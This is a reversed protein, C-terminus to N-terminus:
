HQIIFKRIESRAQGSINIKIIYIGDAWSSVNINAIYQNTYFIEKGYIDFIEISIDKVTENNININLFDKVPNPFLKIEPPRVIKNKTNLQFSLLKGFYPRIMLAGDISSNQWNGDLNYFLKNKANYNCDFGLNLLDNTTQEIGIYFTDSVFVPNDFQFYVFKNLKESYKPHLNEGEFKKIINNPKNNKNDLIIINFIVKELKEAYFSHNFYMFVGTISDAKLPTYQLVFKGYASGQGTLGYSMEATGDDYSYYNEFKQIFITSDNAKVKKNIDWKVSDTKIFGTIEFHALSDDNHSFTYEPYIYKNYIINPFFDDVGVDKPIGIENKTKNRIQYYWTVNRTNEGYNTFTLIMESNILRSSMENTYHQWPISSYEKLFPKLTKRIAVDKFLTDNKNRGNSLYIYDVNWHDINAIQSPESTNKPLSIKNMIRFKFGNRFFFTDVKIIKLRFIKQKNKVSESIPVGPIKKNIGEIKEVTIWKSSDTDFFQVILSDEIEPPDGNGGPQYYFSLYISDSEKYGSLDIPRSCLIDGIDSNTILEGKCNYSDFTAIGISPPM